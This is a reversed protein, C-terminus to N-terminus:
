KGHNAHYGYAREASKRCIVASKKCMFYGLYQQKGDVVIQASWKNKSKNWYVGLVGSKNDPKKRMNRSNEGATVDRLNIIRNDARNHNIHDIQKKPWEGYHMAWIVRHATYPRNLISGMFYGLSNLSALARKGSYRSNWRSFANTNEFMGEDRYRWHLLGASADCKLLKHLLDIELLPQNTMEANRVHQIITATSPM